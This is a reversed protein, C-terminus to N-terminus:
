KKRKETRVERVARSIEQGFEDQKTESIRDKIKDFIKFKAQWEPQTFRKTPDILREYEAKSIIVAAERNYKKIIIQNNGYMVSGIIEALNTRLEDISVQNTNIM